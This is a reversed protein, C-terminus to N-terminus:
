QVCGEGVGRKGHTVMTGALKPDCAAQVDRARDSVIDDVIVWYTEGRWELQYMGNESVGLIAAPLGLEGAGVTAKPDDDEPTAYLELEDLGDGLGTVNGLGAAGATTAMLVLAITIWGTRMIREGAHRALWAGWGASQAPDTCVHWYCVM